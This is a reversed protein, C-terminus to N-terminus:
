AHVLEGYLRIISDAVAQTTFGGDIVRLRAAAGMRQVLECDQALTVFAKALADEDGAAVVLGEVGHRVFSACGPTNTTVIPRGAAAGELLSRPLGEGGLSPVCVVHHNGWVSRIDNSRGVWEIGPAECLRWLEVETLTRPNGPDPSGVLTLAVDAGSARALGIARVAVEIGKSFIMRSIIAIKLPPRDPFPLVTEQEPDVGAGGVILLNRRGIRMGLRRPDDVNEFVYAARKGGLILRLFWGLAAL